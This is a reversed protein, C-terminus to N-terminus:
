SASTDKAGIREISSLLTEAHRLSAGLAEAMAPVTLWELGWAAGSREQEHIMAQSLVGQQGAVYRALTVMTEAAIPNQKHPMASSSGGGGLSIEDVGQQAMLAIDQGIKGLTGAVLTMWHGFDVIRSRDAHWVSTLSLGLIDAATQACDDVFSHPKDRAGIPGGIQLVRMANSVADARVLHESLPRRWADLRLAVTSPLAVQMRTRADMQADGFRDMLREIESVVKSIRTTLTELVTLCTLMTATDIVDQSTAGTHIAFAVSKPQGQRLASVLAPVPIGDRNSAEGFDTSSFDAIAKQAARADDSSVVGHEGLARTWAEEFALMNRTFNTSSFASAIAPDNFLEGFLGSNTFANTM